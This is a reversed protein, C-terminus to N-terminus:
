IVKKFIMEFSDKSQKYNKDLNSFNPINFISNPVGIDTNFLEKFSNYIKTKDGYNLIILGTDQLYQILYRLSVGRYDSFHEKIVKEIEIKNDHKIFDRLPKITQPKKVDSKNNFENNGKVSSSELNSKEIDEKVNPLDIFSQALSDFLEDKDISKRKVIFVREIETIHTNYILKQQQFLRMPNNEEECYFLHYCTILINSVSNLMTLKDLYNEFIYKFTTSGITDKLQALYETNKLLEYIKQANNNIISQPDKLQHTELNENIHLLIDVYKELFAEDVKHGLFNIANKGKETEVIEKPIMFIFGNFLPTYLKAIAEESNVEM